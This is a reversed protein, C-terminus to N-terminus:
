VHGLRGILCLKIPLYRIFCILAIAISLMRPFTSIYLTQGTAPLHIAKPLALCNSQLVKKLRSSPRTSPSGPCLLPILIFTSKEANFSM